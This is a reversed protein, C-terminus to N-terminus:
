EWNFMEQVPVTTDALYAGIGIADASDESVKIDYKAKVILQMSRKKDNRTKGKVKNHARWISSPIVKFPIGLEFLTEMLIGQLRALTEFTTVGVNPQYQIGELGVYDPQWSEVMSIVWQKIRHDRAIETDLQTEFVGYKVLEKNSFISFGSIHTAQDLGLVRFENKKKPIIKKDQNKHINQKCVPCERQLRIKKWSAFVSHGEECIFEMESDLNSYETSAVKWGDEEVETRIDEIKIRSM